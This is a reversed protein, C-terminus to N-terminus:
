YVRQMFLIDASTTPASHFHVGPNELTVKDVWKRNFVSGDAFSLNDSHSHNGAVRDVWQGSSNFPRVVYSGLLWNRADNEEILVFRQDPNPLESMRIFGRQNTNWRGFDRLGHANKPSDKSIVNRADDGNLKGNMAYSLFWPQVPTPCRLTELSKLYPWFGGAQAAGVQNLFNTNNTAGIWPPEGNVVWNDSAVLAGDNETSYLHWMKTLATLNSQCKVINTRTRAQKYLPAILSILIAIIAVVVLLEVLSFARISGRQKQLNYYLKRMAMWRARVYGVDGGCSSMVGTM